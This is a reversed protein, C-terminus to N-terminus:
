VFWFLFSNLLLKEGNEIFVNTTNSLKQWTEKHESLKICNILISFCIIRILVFDMSFWLSSLIAKGGGWGWFVFQLKVFYIIIPGIHWSISASNNQQSDRQYMRFEEENVFYNIFEIHIQTNRPMMRQRTNILVITLGNIFNAHLLM